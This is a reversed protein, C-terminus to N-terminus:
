RLIEFKRRYTPAISQRTYTHIVVRRANIDPLSDALVAFCSEMLHLETAKELHATWDFLNQTKDPNAFVIPMDPLRKHDIIFGRHQDQHVFCFEGEPPKLERTPQRVVKFKDWRDEFPVGANRYFCKDWEKPSFPKPGFMSINLVQFKLKEVHKCFEIADRDDDVILWEINRDDHTMFSLTPTNHRKSLAFVNHTQSYHRLIGNCVIGDGMGLNFYIVIQPLDSM